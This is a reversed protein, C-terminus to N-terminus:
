KNFGLLKVDLLNKLVKRKVGEIGSESVFILEEEGNDEQYSSYSIEIQEEDNDIDLNEYFLVDRVKFVIELNGYIDLFILNIIKYWEFEEILLKGSGKKICDM